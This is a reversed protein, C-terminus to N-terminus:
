FINIINTEYKMKSKLTAVLFNLFIYTAQMPLKFYLKQPCHHEPSDTSTENLKHIEMM